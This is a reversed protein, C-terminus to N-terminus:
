SAPTAATPVIGLQQWLSVGAVESWSEAVRGCEFRFVNIGTWEARTGNPEASLFPGDLTGTVSYRLAVLNDHAIAQEVVTEMDPFGTLFLQIGEQLPVLGITDRRLGFHHRTDPTVLDALSDLDGTTFVSLWQQALEINEAESTEACAAVPTAVAPTAVVVETGSDLGLGLQTLNDAESWSEVILGCAFQFINVGSWSVYEGTPAFGQVSASFTGSCTWRIVVFEGDTFADDMVVTLDPFATRIDALLDKIAQHDPAVPFFAGDHTSASAYIEDVIDLNGAALGETFFSSAM